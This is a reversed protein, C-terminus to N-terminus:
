APLTSVRSSEELPMEIKSGALAAKAKAAPLMEPQAAKVIERIRGTEHLIEAFDPFNQDRELMVANVQTRELVYKLLQYVPEEVAAGHTDIIKDPGHWHGAIHIQVTRDLPIQSLFEFPDYGHNLSNVFVNNVDLLLGCDSQELVESIFQAETLEAGPMNMYFSINEFLFPRGIKEQVLKARKAVHRVAERSFPLPLLDHMYVGDISAFCLHDSWWPADILDLLKKLARVYDNSLEDTSGLSLNIGHTVLPFSSRATDLRNRAAGGLGMYNEPVLELFDLSNRNEFTENAMERRLGLGVGLKPLEKKVQSFQSAM